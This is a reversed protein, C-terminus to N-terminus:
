SEDMQDGEPGKNSKSAAHHRLLHQLLAAVGNGTSDSEIGFSRLLETGQGSQLAHSLSAVQQRFQPSRLLEALAEPSSDGDPLHEVLSQLSEEIAPDRLIPIVIDPGLLESVSPTDTPVTRSISELISELQETTIQARNQQPGEATGYAAPTTAPAPVPASRDETSSDGVPQGGNFAQNVKQFFEEDRDANPEQMWIFMDRSKDEVWRLLFVRGNSQPVKKFEVEGPMVYSFDIEGSARDQWVAHKLDDADQSVRFIGKRPDPVIRNGEKTCKGARFQVLTIASNLDM